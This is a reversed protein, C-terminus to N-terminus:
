QGGRSSDLRIWAKMKAVTEGEIGNYGHYGFAECPNGSTTGGEMTILLTGYRDHNSQAANYTTVRCGDDKHHVLLQRSKLHRTDFGAIENMSSTHIFGAVKGDLKEALTMTSTTSRSTGVIYISADAYRNSLDAIIANMREPSTTADTSVVVTESDAFLARSRILFNGAASFSVKGDRLEPRLNGAGGPMVILAYKVTAPQKSTLMYPIAEGNADHATVVLQDKGPEDAHAGNAALALCCACLIINFQRYYNMSLYGPMFMVFQRTSM